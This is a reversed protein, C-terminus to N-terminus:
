LVTEIKLFFDNLFTYIRAYRELHISGPLTVSIHIQLSVLLQQILPKSSKWPTVSPSLKQQACLLAACIMIVM